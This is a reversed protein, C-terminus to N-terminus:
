HVGSMPWFCKGHVRLKATHAAPLQPRTHLHQQGQHHGSLLCTSRIVAGAKSTTAGKVADMIDVNPLTITVLPMFLQEPWRCRGRHQRTARSWPSGFRGSSFQSHTARSLM